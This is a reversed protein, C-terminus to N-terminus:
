YGLDKDTPEPPVCFAREDRSAQHNHFVCHHEICWQLKWVIHLAKRIEEQAKRIDPHLMAPVMGYFLSTCGCPLIIRRSSIPLDGDPTTRCIVLDGCLMDTLKGSDNSLAAPLLYALCNAKKM